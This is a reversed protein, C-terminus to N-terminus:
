LWSKGIGHCNKMVQDNNIPKQGGKKVWGIRIWGFPVHLNLTPAKLDVNAGISIENWGVFFFYCVFARYQGHLPDSVTRLDYKRYIGELEKWFANREIDLSTM